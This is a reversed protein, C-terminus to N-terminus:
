RKLSSAGITPLLQRTLVSDSPEFLGEGRYAGLSNTFPVVPATQSSIQRDATQAPTSVAVSPPVPTSVPKPVIRAFPYNVGKPTEVGGRHLRVYDTSGDTITRGDSLQIIFEKGRHVVGTVFVDPKATSVATAQLPAQGPQAQGPQVQSAKPHEGAPPQNKGITFKAFLWPVGVLAVLFIIIAGPVAWIIPIGKARKGIDATTGVVGVGDQTRYVSGIGEVDMTWVDERYHEVDKTTPEVQFWRATFRGRGKFMGFQSQYGNKLRIFAHAKDRFPKAIAGPRRGNCSAWVDDGFKRQQDLYWSAAQGRTARGETAAWGLADFGSVGAEDIIFVCGKEGKDAEVLEADPGGEASVRKPGRYKWFERTEEETLIRVRRAVDVSAGQEDLYQQLRPINLSLNTSINRQTTSLEQVVLRAQFYSKGSGGPGFLVHIAM